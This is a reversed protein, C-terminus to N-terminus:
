EEAGRFFRLGATHFVHETMGARGVRVVLGSPASVAEDEATLALSIEVVDKWAIQIDLSPDSCHACHVQPRDSEQLAFSLVPEDGGEARTVRVELELGPLLESSAPTVLVCLRAGNWGFRVAQIRTEEARQMTSPLDPLLFGASDWESGQGGAGPGVIGDITPDLEGQPASPLLSPEHDLLPLFLWEPVPEGLIRYVEHLHNRFSRDWVHDLDTHHHDGFWWFWDSGEAILIHRWASEAPTSHTENTAPMGGPSASRRNAAALDRTQHLAEWARNHATDGSWTRLHGGIWSGTHLWGLSQRPPAEKLHESVTVCRLSTDATLGEYLYQIFDRGDRPYYEWANEGDLAITVLPVEGRGGVQEALTTGINRLRQLLDHAADRPEWSQYAFGILDSLTHDRFVIALGGKERELSYPAYVLKPDQDHSGAKASLSPRPSELPATMGHAAPGPGSTNSGANTFVPAAAGSLSRALVTEDSITWKVGAEVLLPIVDEGVAQESCWMGEPPDGFVQSHKIMARHIQEAADEPHAFRRSPLLTDAAGIRAADSNALLPLIPHYYPSTCLEVQGRDAAAHYAPITRSLIDRQVEALSLKDGESFNRGRQALDLLPEEDLLEPDCWALNFWVQLDRLEDTGFAQACAEWGRSAHAERKRALELYRPHSLARPHDPHECMREVVFTREAADLEAAPKLTHEWYVDIFDGSAYAELQEVLSPVLNFTQHLDPYRGLTEVMDLYDKLAHLRVWPLEFAGTTASRYYPQHM